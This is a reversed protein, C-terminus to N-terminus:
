QASAVVDEESGGQTEESNAFEQDMSTSQSVAFQITSAPAHSSPVNQIVGFKLLRFVRCAMANQVASGLMALVSRHSSSISPTFVGIVVFVHLGVTALYYLQGTHLLTRSIHGLNRGSLFSKLRSGWTETLSFSLVRMTIAIFVATDFITVTLFIAAGFTKVDTMICVHDVLDLDLGNFSFPTLVSACTSLWLLGFVAVVTRSERFIGLIRIFFLLTNCPVSIAGFWGAAKILSHCHEGVPAVFFTLATTLFAFTMIRAVAYALNPITLRKETFLRVEEPFELFIDWLWAAEVAVTIYNATQVQSAIDPGLGEFPSRQSLLPAM